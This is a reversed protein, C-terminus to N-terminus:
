GDDTGELDGDFAARGAEGLSGLGGEENDLMPEKTDPELGADYPKRANTM